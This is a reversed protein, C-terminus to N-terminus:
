ARDERIDLLLDELDEFQIEAFRRRAAQPARSWAERLTKLAAEVPDQQPKAAVTLAQAIKKVQGTAFAEVAAPRDEPEANHLALLDNVFVRRPASRLREATVKDLLDGVEALRYLKRKPLATQEAMLNIFGVLHLNADTNWRASAGALGQRTEPHEAIYERRRAALHIARDLDSLDARCLNAEIEVVRIESARGEYCRVEAEARGLLRLAEYRHGGDVLEYRQKPLRRITLPQLLGIREISEAIVEVALPDAPRIRDDRITIQDLPLVTIDAILDPM